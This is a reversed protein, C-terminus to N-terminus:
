QVHQIIVSKWFCQKQRERNASHVFPSTIVFIVCVTSEQCKILSVLQNRHLSCFRTAHDVTDGLYFGTRSRLPFRIESYSMPCAKDQKLIEEVNQFISYM